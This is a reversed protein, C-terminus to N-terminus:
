ANYLFEFDTGPDISKMKEKKDKLNILMLYNIWTEFKWIVKKAILDQNLRKLEIKADFKIISLM